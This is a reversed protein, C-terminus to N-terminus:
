VGWFVEPLSSKPMTARRYKIVGNNAEVVSRFWLPPLLRVFVLNFFGAHVVLQQQFLFVPRGDAVCVQGPDTLVMTPVM